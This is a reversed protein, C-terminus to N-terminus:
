CRIARNTKSQENEGKVGSVKCLRGLLAPPPNFEGTGLCALQQLPYVDLLLYCRYM